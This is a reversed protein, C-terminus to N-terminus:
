YKKRDILVEKSSVNLFCRACDEAMADDDVKSGSECVAYTWVERMAEEVLSGRDGPSSFGPGRGM